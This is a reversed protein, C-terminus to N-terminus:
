RRFRMNFPMSAVRRRAIEIFPATACLVPSANSGEPLSRLPSARGADSTLSQVQRPLKPHAVVSEYLPM